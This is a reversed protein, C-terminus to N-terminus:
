SMRKIIEDIETKLSEPIKFEKGSSMGCYQCYVWSGEIRTTSKGCFICENEHVREIKSDKFYNIPQIGKTHLCCKSCKDKSYTHTMAHCNGCYSIETEDIRNM